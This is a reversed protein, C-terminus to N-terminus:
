ATRIAVVDYAKTSKGTENEIVTIRKTGVASFTISASAVASVLDEIYTGDVYLKITAGTLTATVTLGTGTFSYSYAYTGSAFTPTIAGTTGTLALTTLNASATLGLTPQGSVKITGEFSVADELDAGTTFATVVGNFDWTAGLAAPFIISYAITDGSEFAAYIAAQGLDGPNFFGSISLEGGDKFGGIFERYGGDSDLSTVDITDASLSLGSISTLEAIYNTAIKLKTGVARKAM